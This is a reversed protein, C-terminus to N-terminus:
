YIIANPKWLKAFKLVNPLRDNDVPYPIACSPKGELTRKENGIYTTGLHVIKDFEKQNVKVVFLIILGIMINKVVM